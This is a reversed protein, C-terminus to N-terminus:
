TARELVIVTADDKGRLFDRFLIAGTLAPHLLGLGAYQSLQWRTAIGDSHMVLRDGRTWEYPLEQLSRMEAGVTGNHSMLGRSTGARSVLVGSINGVGVYVVKDSDLSLSAVAVAAGRTSRLAAHGREILSKLGVAPGADFIGAMGEAAKSALPGHGVGDAVLVRIEDSTASLRWSDGIVTELPAATSIAGWRWTTKSAAAKGHVRSLVATGKGVQSFLDFEDSLRKVAGLGNGPTSGSSVGDRLCREPDAMGPGSDISLMEVANSGGASLFQVLLQGGGAHRALNTALETAIVAVRGCATEDFASDTAIGVANRRAAGIDATSAITCVVQTAM